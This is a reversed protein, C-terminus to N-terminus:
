SKFIKDADEGSPLTEKSIKTNGDLGAEEGVTGEMRRRQREIPAARLRDRNEVPTQMLVLDETGIQSSGDYNPGLPADPKNGDVVEWGDLKRRGIDGATKKVFRYAMGDQKKHVDLYKPTDLAHTKVSKTQAKKKAM